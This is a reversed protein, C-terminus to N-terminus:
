INEKQKKQKEYLKRQPSKYGKTELIQIPTMGKFRLYFYEETTFNAVLFKIFAKASTRPQYKFRAVFLNHDQGGLDCTLYMGDFRLMEKTFRTM